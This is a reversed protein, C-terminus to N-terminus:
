VCDHMVASKDTMYTTATWQGGSRSKHSRYSPRVTMKATMQQWWLSKSYLSLPGLRIIVTCGEALLAPVCASAAVLAAETAAAPRRGRMSSTREEPDAPAPSRGHKGRTVRRQGRYRKEASFAVAPGRRGGGAACSLGVTSPSAGPDWVFGIAESATTNAYRYYGHDLRKKRERQKSVWGGLQRDEAWGAQPVLCDGHAAKYAVLRVVQAEWDEESSLARWPAPATAVLGGSGGSRPSAFSFGLAELEAARAATMGLGAEGRDLARKRRRQHAVWSGLKPDEAWGRPV